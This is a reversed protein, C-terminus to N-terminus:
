IPTDRAVDFRNYALVVLPLAGLACATVAVWAASLALWLNNGTVYYTLGGAAGAV